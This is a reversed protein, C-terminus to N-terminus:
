AIVLICHHWHNQFMQAKRVLNLSLSIWSDVPWWQMLNVGRTHIVFEPGLDM